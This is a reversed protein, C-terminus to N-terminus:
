LEWLESAGWYSSINSGENGHPVLYSSINSGENRQPVWYSSINGGENGQLVSCIMKNPHMRTILITVHWRISHGLPILTTVYWGISYDSIGRDNLPMSLNSNGNLSLAVTIMWNTDRSWTQLNSFPLWIASYYSGLCFRATISHLVVSYDSIGRDNLPMSLNSNGNLSLAHYMRFGDFKGWRDYSRCM